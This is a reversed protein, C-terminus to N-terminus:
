AGHVNTTVILTQPPKAGNKTSGGLGPEAFVQITAGVNSGIAGAPCPVALGGTPTYVCTLVGNTPNNETFTITNLILGAPLVNTFIVHDARTQTVDSITWVINGAQGMNPNPVQANGTVSIAASVTVTPPPAPATTFSGVASVPNLGTDIGNFTGTLTVGNTQIQVIANASVTALPALTGGLNCTVLTIGLGGGSCTGSAPSSWSSSRAM